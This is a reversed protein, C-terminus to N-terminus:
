LKRTIIKHLEHANKFRFVIFIHLLIYIAKYTVCRFNDM